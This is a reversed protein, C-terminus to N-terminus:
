PTLARNARLRRDRSTGARNYKPHEAAIAAAEAARAANLGQIWEITIRRAEPFWESHTSHRQFRMDLDLTSGIYLLTGDSAFVRYVLSKGPHLDAHM